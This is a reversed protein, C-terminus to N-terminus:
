DNTSHYDIVCYIDQEVCEAVAADIFSTWGEPDSNWGGFGWGMDDVHVPIRVVNAHWGKQADSALRIVARLQNEPTDALEASYHGGIVDTHYATFKADAIAVGRLVVENGDSDCIDNGCSQLRPVAAISTSMGVVLVLLM